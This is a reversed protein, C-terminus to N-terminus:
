AIAGGQPRPGAVMRRGAATLNDDSLEALCVLEDGRAHGPNRELFYAVHRDLERGCPVDALHGRLQQPRAFRVIGADAVFEAGFRERALQDMLRAEAAPTAADCCPWFTRWFVPLFRYTRFGSTILLWYLKGRPFARRLDRVAAIWARPLATTGWAEPAVITDGSTVVTVIRGEHASEQVALTSFGVLVGDRRILVVRNKGALDRAFQERSVGEFHRALLEFMADRDAAPLAERDVVVSDGASALDIV